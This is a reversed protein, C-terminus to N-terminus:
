FDLRALRVQERMGSIVESSPVRKAPAAVFRAADPSKAWRKCTKAYLNVFRYETEIWDGVNGGQRRTEDWYTRYMWRFQNRASQNIALEAAETTLDPEAAVLADRQETVWDALGEEDVEYGFTQCVNALVLSQGIEAPLKPPAANVPPEGGTLAIASILSLM